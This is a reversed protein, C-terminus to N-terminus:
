NVKELTFTVDTNGGCGGGDENFTITFSSDDDPDYTNVVDSPNYTINPGGCSLGTDLTTFVIKGCVLEFPFDTSFGGFIPYTTLGITRKTSGQATIEVNGEELTGPGFIGPTVNTVKYTGTFAGEPVPCVVTPTYLFPSRYFSGTLTGTNNAFSFRRGDELVLEFRISFQDGGTIQDESRGVFSLMEDLSASFTFRPYGFEGETFTSADLTTFLSEDVDTGPGIEDTNDRFGIYVEVEEVLEGDEIDQVELEVAFNAGPTGIPLEGSIVNITRLIAGRTTNATIEDVLADGDDCSQLFLSCLFLLPLYIKIHNKM